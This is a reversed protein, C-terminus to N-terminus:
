NDGNDFYELTKNLHISHLIAMKDLKEYWTIEKACWSSNQSSQQFQSVNLSHCNNCLTCSTCNQDYHACKSPNRWHQRDMDFGMSKVPFQVTSGYCQWFLKLFNKPRFKFLLQNQETSKVFSDLSNKEIEKKRNAIEAANSCFCM